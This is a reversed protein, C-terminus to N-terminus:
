NVLPYHLSNKIILFHPSYDRFCGPDFIGTTFLSFRCSNPISDIQSMESISLSLMKEDFKHFYVLMTDHNSYIEDFNM